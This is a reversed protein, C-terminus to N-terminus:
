KPSGITRYVQTYIELLNAVINMGERNLHHVCQALDRRGEIDHQYANSFAAARSPIYSLLIIISCSQATHMTQCLTM